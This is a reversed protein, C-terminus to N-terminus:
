KRLRKVEQTVNFMKIGIVCLVLIMIPILVFNLVFVGKSNKSLVFFCLVAMFIGTIFENIGFEQRFYAAFGACMVFFSILLFLNVIFNLVIRFDINKFRHEGIIINLIGDYNDVNYKKIIWLTKYIVCGVLVGSLAMGLIGNEGFVFFFSYVEKGSAFGAGVIAGIIVFVCSLIGM